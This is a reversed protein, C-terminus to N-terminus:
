LGEAALVLQQDVPLLLVSQKAAAAAGSEEGGGGLQGSVLAGVQSAKVTAETLGPECLQATQPLVRQGM